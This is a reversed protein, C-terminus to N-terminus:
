RDTRRRGPSEPRPTQRREGWRHEKLAYGQLILNTAIDPDLNYTHGVQLRQLWMGGIAGAPKNIITVRMAAVGRGAVSLTLPLSIAFKM